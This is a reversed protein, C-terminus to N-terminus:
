EQHGLRMLRGLIEKKPAGPKMQRFLAFLRIWRGMDQPSMAGPYFPLMDAHDELWYRVDFGEKLAQQYLLAGPMIKLGNIVVPVEPSFKGGNIFTEAVDKKTEGPFGVILNVHAKIGLSVTLNANRIAVEPSYPRGISALVKRCLSDVGYFIAECGSEKMLLLMERDVLDIRTGCIWPIGVKEKILAECIARARARDVTFNMDHFFIGDRLHEPILKIQAIINAVSRYALHRGMFGVGSCYTCAFPCGRTTEVPLTDNLKDMTALNRSPEILFRKYDILPLDDLSDLRARPANRVVCAGQRFTLGAVSALDRGSGLAELLDCFIHEGEGRVVYDVCSYASLIQEDLFTAHIGGFVVVVSPDLAKALVALKLCAFRNFTACSIGLVSPKKARMVVTLAAPSYDASCYVDCPIGARQEVYSAVSALGLSLRPAPATLAAGEVDSLDRYPPYCLLVRAIAAHKM